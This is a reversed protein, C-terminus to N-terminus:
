RRLRYRLYLEGTAHNPIASILTLQALLATSPPRNSRVPTLTENGGVIRPGLTLFYEDVLGADLLMGNLMPGGEVLVRSAGLEQRMHHLMARAPDAAPVTVVERGTARIAAAREPAADSGLYVIARFDEATFFLRDLPMDGSGSLVAAIPNPSLGRAARIAALEPDGLRSSSGSARLTSAGNLVVDANVRLERMLRQDVPTGLGQENGEVVVKGDASMVMNTYVFPRDPPPDPFELTVYDPKTHDTM